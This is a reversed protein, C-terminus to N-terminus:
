SSKKGYRISDIVRKIVPGYRMGQATKSSFSLVWKTRGDCGVYTVTSVKNEDKKAEEGEGVWDHQTIKSAPHLGVVQANAEGWRADTEKLKEVIQKLCAPAPRMPDVPFVTVTLRAQEDLDTGQAWTKTDGEEPVARWKTPAKFILRGLSVGSLADPSGALLSALVLATM